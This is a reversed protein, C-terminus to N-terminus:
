MKCTVHELSRCKNTWSAALHLQHPSPSLRIVIGLHRHCHLRDAPAAACMDCGWEGNRKGDGDLLINHTGAKAMGKHGRGRGRGNGKAEGKSKAGPKDKRITRQPSLSLSSSTQLVLQRKPAM